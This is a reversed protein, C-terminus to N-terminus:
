DMRLSSAVELELAAVAFSPALDVVINSAGVAVAVIHEVQFAAEEEVTHSPAM